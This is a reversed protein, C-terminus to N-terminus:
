EREDRTDQLYAYYKDLEITVGDYGAIFHGYGDMEICEQAIGNYDVSICLNKIVDRMDKKGFTDKYWDAYSYYHKEVDEILYNALEDILDKIGTYEGNENCEDERIIGHEVCEQILRNAYDSIRDPEEAIDSAYNHYDKKCCEEFWDDDIYKSCITEQFSPTFAELGLDDMSNEVDEKVARFSEEENLVYFTGNPTKYENHIDKSDEDEIQIENEDIELYEALEKRKKENETTM